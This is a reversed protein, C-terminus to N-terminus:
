TSFSPYCYSKRELVMGDVICLEDLYTFYPRVSEIGDSNSLLWGDRIYKMLLQLNTDTVTEKQIEAIKSESVNM